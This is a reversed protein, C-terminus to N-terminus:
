DNDMYSSNRLIFIFKPVFNNPEASGMNQMRAGGWICM